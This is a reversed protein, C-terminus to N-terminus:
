AGSTLVLALATYGKARAHVLATTGNRDGLERDAGADLLIRVIEQYPKSGDGLIVTELLATWGLDNVHNIDIATKAVLRVYEVHGRESAPIISTGGYRNLIGLDPDAQLIVEAMAVSGTVGTVLWPTDNQADLADPDAGLAVLVRAVDVRDNTAAFLLPTRRAEDVAELEAGARVALAVRDADGDAAADLLERSPDSPTAHEITARLTAEVTRQGKTSTHALPTVGDRASPLGVDANAAVLLRVTDIYRSSGDGLIIAEHLATWGLNNVHNVDIGARLLRGVIAAHGREAARILGTGNYSDRSDIEAGNALTLDLLDLYGESTAILYASQKTTDQFNVDAGEEILRAAAPIDNRWAAAILATNRTDDARKDSGSFVGSLSTVSRNVSSTPTTPDVRVQDGTCGAVLTLLLLSGWSHTRM